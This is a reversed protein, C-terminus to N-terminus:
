WRGTSFDVGQVGTEGGFTYYDMKMIEPPSGPIPYHLSFGPGPRSISILGKAGTTPSITVLGKPIFPVRTGISFILIMQTKSKPKGCGSLSFVVFVTLLLIKLPNWAM